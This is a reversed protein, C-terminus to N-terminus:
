LSNGLTCFDVTARMANKLCEYFIIHIHEPIFSFSTDLNGEIRVHPAIGYFQTCIGAVEEACKNMIDAPRCKLHVVGAYEPRPTHIAIHHELIVRRSIRTVFLRELFADVDKVADPCSSRLERVGNRMLNIVDSHKSVQDHLVETFATEAEADKIPQCNRMALFAEWYLEYCGRISPNLLVIHPQRNFDWLRHAFRVQMEDRIWEANKILASPAASNTRTLQQMTIPRVPTRALKELLHIKGWMDASLTGLRSM